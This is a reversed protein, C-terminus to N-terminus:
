GREPHRSEFEARFEDYSPMGELKQLQGPPLDQELVYTDRFDKESIRFWQGAPYEVLLVEGPSLVVGGEDVPMYTTGMIIQAYGRELKGFVNVYREFPPNEQGPGGAVALKEWVENM